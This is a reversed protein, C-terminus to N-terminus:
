VIFIAIDNDAILCVPLVFGEGLGPLVKFIEMLMALMHRGQVVRGDRWFVGIGAAIPFNIGIYGFLNILLKLRNPLLDFTYTNFIRKKQDLFIERVIFLPIHLDIM